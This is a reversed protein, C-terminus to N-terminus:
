LAETKKKGVLIFFLGSAVIMAIGAVDFASLVESFMLWGWIISFGVYAYDFPAVISSPANLYAKAVLVNGLAFVFSMVAILLAESLGIADWFSSVFITAVSSETMSPTFFLVVSVFFGTMAFFGNFLLSLVKPDENSCKARTLIVSFAYFAAGVVPFLSYLNFSSTGPRTLLLVGSFGALMAVWTGKTVISKEGNLISLLTILLPSCYFSAAIVSLKLHPISFLFFLWSLILLGGRISVWFISQPCLSSARQRYCIIAILLITAVFSRVVILQLISFGASFFKMLADSFSLAFTAIVISAIAFRINDSRVSLGEM